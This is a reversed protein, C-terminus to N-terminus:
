VRPLSIRFICGVGPIDQVSLVGGSAHVGKQAISLGLGLGSRNNSTQTFPKFMRNITGPGLGGCRDEVDISVRDGDAHVSLTVTTHPQTFKFANQLLNLLAALLLERNGTVVLDKDVPPVVFTCGSASAYLSAATRADEVFSAVSLAETEVEIGAALRVEAIASHLVAAMSGISRKLVAGTSGKIPLAGSELATFALSVTGLHNRLEHVLSGLRENEAAMQSRATSVDRQASFENVADAIANDLCRNLTRFEDVAFPADREVALDTIAQCLDGYDHVVQDVTFGLDLLAKGHAIASLGMESLAAGDGGSAGSIRLSEDSDGTEEAALTRTLQDLFMPVGNSLQAATASRHPRRAVKAKCRDILEERNHTLFAHM